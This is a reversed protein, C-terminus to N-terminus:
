AVNEKIFYIYSCCFGIQSTSIALNVAHKGITGFTKQGLDTYSVANVKIRSDLLLVSCFMTLIMSIVLAIIQFGWGGNVFSRPLYLVSTCVFGKMLTIYTEMAGLKKIKKKVEDNKARRVTNPSKGIM